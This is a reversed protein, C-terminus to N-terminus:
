RAQSPLRCKEWGPTCSGLEAKARLDGEAAARRLWMEIEAYLEEEEDYDGSTREELLAALALMSAIDGGEAAARLVREDM